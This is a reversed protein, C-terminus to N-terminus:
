IGFHIMFKGRNIAEQIKDALRYAAKANVNALFKVHQILM